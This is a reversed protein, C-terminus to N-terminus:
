ISPTSGLQYAKLIEGIDTGTGKNASRLNHATYEGSASMGRHYLMVTEYSTDVEAIIMAFTNEFVRERTKYDSLKLGTRIEFDRVTQTSVVYINSAAALSISGSTVAAMVNKRNRELVARYHGDTDNILTTKHKQIIDACFVLDSILNIQGARWLNIRTGFSEDESNASLIDTMTKYSTPCPLLRVTIPLDVKETGIKVSVQILKGAALPAMERIDKASFAVGNISGKDEKSEAGTDELGYNELGFPQNPVPLQLKYPAASSQSYSERSVGPAYPDSLVTNIITGYGDRNPNLQELVKLTRVNEIGACQMALAQLYYGSYSSVLTQMLDPLFSATMARTDVLVIPEVRFIKGQDTLSGGKLVANGHAVQRLFELPSITTNLM